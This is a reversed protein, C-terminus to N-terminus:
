SSTNVHPINFFRPFVKSEIIAKLKVIAAYSVEIENWFDMVHEYGNYVLNITGSNQM